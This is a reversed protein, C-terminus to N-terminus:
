VSLENILYSNVLFKDCVTMFSSDYTTFYFSITYIGGIYCTSPCSKLDDGVVHWIYGQVMLFGFILTSISWSFSKKSSLFFYNWYVNNALINDQRVHPILVLQTLFVSWGWHYSPMGSYNVPLTISSLLLMFANASHPGTFLLSSSSEIRKRKKFSELYLITLGYTPPIYQCERM